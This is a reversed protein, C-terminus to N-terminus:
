KKALHASSRYPTFATTLNSFHGEGFSRIFNGDRDFVVIPHEGRTLVFVRDEGDVAVGPCELLKFGEPLKTWDEVFTYRFDGEGYIDAM